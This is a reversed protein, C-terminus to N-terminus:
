SFSALCVVILSTGERQCNYSMILCIYPLGAPLDEPGFKNLMDPLAALVLPVTTLDSTPPEVVPQVSKLVVKMESAAFFVLQM